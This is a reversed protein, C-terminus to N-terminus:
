VLLRRKDKSKFIKFSKLKTSVLRITELMESIEEMSLLDPNFCLRVLNTRFKLILSDYNVPHGM